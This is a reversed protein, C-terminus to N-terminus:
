SYSEVLLRLCHQSCTILNLSFKINLFLDLGLELVDWHFFFSFCLLNMKKRFFYTVAESNICSSLSGVYSMPVSSSGQTRQQFRVAKSLSSINTISLTQKLDLVIHVYNIFSPPPLFPPSLSLARYVSLGACARALIDTKCLEPAYPRLKWLPARYVDQRNILVFLALECERVCAYVCVRTRVHRYTCECTSPTLAKGYRGVTWTKEAYSTAPRM